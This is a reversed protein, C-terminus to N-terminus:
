KVLRVEEMGDNSVLLYMNIGTLPLVEKINMEVEGDFKRVGWNSFIMCKKGDFMIVNGESVSINSYEGVFKKSIKQEGNMDYLRLESEEEGVNKLVFGLYEDDYFVQQVAKGLEITKAAQPTDKGNYVVFFSDGVIISKKNNIFFSTPMVTNKYVDETVQYTEKEAGGDKFNYYVVRTAEVGDAVCLYSVQLMTGDASLSMGIPYGIGSLSATHEVLVNGTADYCIIQPSMGNRLLVSVIGNESVAAMEVPYNTHIEGRLGSKNFVYLDNGAQDGIVLAEKNSTVFPKKIQYSQNWKEEGKKNLFAAGDRSYKLIGDAYKVFNSNDTEAEGYEQITRMTSYTQMEVLMYTSILVAAITLISIGIHFMRKRKNSQIIKDVDDNPQRVEITVSMNNGKRTSLGTGGRLKEARERAQALECRVSSTRPSTGVRM